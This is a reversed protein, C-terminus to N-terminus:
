GADHDTLILGCSRKRVVRRVCVFSPLHMCCLSTVGPISRPGGSGPNPRAGGLQCIHRQPFASSREGESPGRPQRVPRASSLPIFDARPPSLPFSGYAGQRPWAQGRTPGVWGPDTVPGRVSDQSDCQPPETSADAQSLTRGRPSFPPCPPSRGLPRVTM